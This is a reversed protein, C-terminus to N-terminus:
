APFRTSAAAALIVQLVRLFFDFFMIPFGPKEPGANASVVKATWDFSHNTDQGQKQWLAPLKVRNLGEFTPVSPMCSQRLVVSNNQMFM